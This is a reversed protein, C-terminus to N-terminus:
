APRWNLNRLPIVTNFVRYRYRQADGAVNMRVAALTATAPLIEIPGSTVPAIQGTSNRQDKELLNSRAVIGVRLARVRDWDIPAAGPTVFTGDDLGIQFKLNVIDDAVVETTGGFHEQRVLQLRNAATGDPQLSYRASTPAPGLNLIRTGIVTTGGSTTDPTFTGPLLQGYRTTNSIGLWGVTGTLRVAGSPANCNASAASNVATGSGTWSVQTNNTCRSTIQTLSCGVGPQAVLIVDQTGPNFSMVSFNDSVPIATTTGDVLWNDTIAVPASQTVGNGFTVEISDPLASGDSAVGGQTITFPALNFSFNRITSGSRDVGNVTCQDYFTASLGVPLQLGYGAQRLDRELSFLAVAGVEQAASMNSSTRRYGQTISFVNYIAGMTIVVIIMSVLLEVLTFGSQQSVALTSPRM